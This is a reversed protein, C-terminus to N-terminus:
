RPPLGRGPVRIRQLDQYDAETVLVDGPAPCSRAQATVGGVWSLMVGDPRVALVTLSGGHGLMVAEDLMCAQGPPAWANAVVRAPVSALAAGPTMGAMSVRLRDGVQPRAAIDAAQAMTGCLIVAGSLGGAIKAAALAQRRLEGAHRQWAQALRWRLRRRPPRNQYRLM